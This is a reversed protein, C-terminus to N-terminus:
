SSTEITRTRDLVALTLSLDARTKHTITAIENRIEAIERELTDVHESARKIDHDALALRILRIRDELRERAM